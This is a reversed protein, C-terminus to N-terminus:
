TQGFWDHAVEASLQKANM